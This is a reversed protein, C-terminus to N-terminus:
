PIYRAQASDEDCVNGSTDQHAPERRQRACAGAAQWLRNLTRAPSAMGKQGSGSNEQGNKKNMKWTFELILEDLELSSALM